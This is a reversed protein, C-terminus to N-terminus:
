TNTKFEQIGPYFDINLFSFMQIIRTLGYYWPTPKCTDVKKVIDNMSIIQYECLYPYKRSYVYSLACLFVFIFLLLYM